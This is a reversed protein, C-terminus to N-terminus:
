IKFSVIGCDMEFVQGSITHAKESLLFDAMEAVDNPELFKKMPHRQSINEVMKENRLLKSALDTNTVTPAIANIRLTTAMEAGLSKVLGEVGSKAAAISTHFPMGLKAAVTSFLVISPKDSKKLIPLYKQICKVAGIVNIEYDERFEELSFREIPKLNISGPCYVLGDASNIDPLDESLVYCSLHELNTHSQEPPTRSINIIQHGEDLLKKVIANGIGKSGGVIIYTKM